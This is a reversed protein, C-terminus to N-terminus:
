GQSTRCLYEDVGVRRGVSRCGVDQWLPYQLPARKKYGVVDATTLISRYIKRFFGKTACSKKRSSTCRTVYSMPNKEGHSPNHGSEDNSEIFPNVQADLGAINARRM